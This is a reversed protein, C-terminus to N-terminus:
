AAARKARHEQLWAFIEDGPCSKTSKERHGLMDAAGGLKSDHGDLLWALAVFALASPKVDRYRKHKNGGLWVVSMHTPNYGKAHAGRVGDGRLTYVHGRNCVAWNYGVDRWGKVEIHYNQMTRLIRFAPMKESPPKGGSIHVMSGVSLPAPKGKVPKLGIEDRTFVRPTSGAVDPPPRDDLAIELADLEDRM